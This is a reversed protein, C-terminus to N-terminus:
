EYKEQEKIFKIIQRIILTTITINRDKALEKLKKHIDEHIDCTLRKKGERPM